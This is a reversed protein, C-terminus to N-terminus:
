HFLRDMITRRRHRISHCVNASNKTLLEPCAQKIIKNTRDMLFCKCDEPEPCCKGVLKGMLSQQQQQQQISKEDILKMCKDYEDIPKDIYKTTKTQHDDM